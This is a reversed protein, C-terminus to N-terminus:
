RGFIKKVKDFFTPNKKNEKKQSIESKIEQIPEKIQSFDKVETRLTEELYRIRYELKDIIQIVTKVSENTKSLATSSYLKELTNMKEYLIQLQKENIKESVNKDLLNIKEELDMLKNSYSDLKPKFAKVDKVLSSLRDINNGAESLPIGLVINKELNEVNKYLDDLTTIMHQQIPDTKKDKSFSIQLNNALNKIESKLELNTESM